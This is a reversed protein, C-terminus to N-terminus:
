QQSEATIKLALGTQIREFYLDYQKSLETIVDSLEIAYMAGFSVTQATCKLEHGKFLEFIEQAMDLGIEDNFELVIIMQRQDPLRNIHIQEDM